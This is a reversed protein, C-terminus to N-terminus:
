MWKFYTVKGLFFFLHIFINELHNQMIIFLSDIDNIM